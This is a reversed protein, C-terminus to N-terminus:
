FRIYILYYGKAKKKPFCRKGTTWIFSSSEQISTMNLIFPFNMSEEGNFLWESQIRDWQIPRYEISVGFLKDFHSHRERLDKMLLNFPYKQHRLVAAQQKIVEVLFSLINLDPNIPMRIPTTSVTMGIMEKEAKGTRNAYASGIVIDDLSTM